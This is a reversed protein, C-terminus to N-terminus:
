LYKITYVVYLFEKIQRKVYIFPQEQFDYLVYIRFDYSFNYLFIIIYLATYKLHYKQESITLFYYKFQFM